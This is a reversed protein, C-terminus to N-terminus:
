EGVHKIHAFRFGSICVFLWVSGAAFGAIVDSLFHVDLYVRTFGILVIFVTTLMFIIRRRRAHHVHAAILYALVGWGIFAAMAHGSPFSTSDVSFERSFIPRDRHFRNKLLTNLVAGGGSAVVILMARPWERRILYGIAVLALIAYLLENGFLTLGLAVKEGIETNHAEMWTATAQDFQVMRGRGPVADGIRYFLWACVASLLLGIIIHVGLYVKPHLWAFRSTWPRPAPIRHLMGSVPAIAAGVSGM